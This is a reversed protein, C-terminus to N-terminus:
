NNTRLKLALKKMMIQIFQPFIDRISFLLKGEFTLVQDGEGEILINRIAVAVKDVPMYPKKPRIAKGVKKENNFFDTDTYGPYIISVKINTDALEARLSQNISALAAKSAAYAGLYPIGYGAAVSSINLIHANENKKMTPLFGFICRLQGFYNIEMVDRFDDM